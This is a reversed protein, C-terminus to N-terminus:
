TTGIVYYEYTPTVGSDENKVYVIGSPRFFAVEGAKVILDSNFDSVFDADILLDLAVAKILIGLVTSVDGLDLIEETDAVSLIRYNYTVATPATTINFSFVPDARQGLGTLTLALEILANAAM